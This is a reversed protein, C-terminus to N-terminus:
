YFSNCKRSSHPPAKGIEPLLCVAYLSHKSAAEWDLEGPKAAQIPPADLGRLQRRQNLWWFDITFHKWDCIVAGLSELWQVGLVVDLGMFPLSFLTLSFSIGQIQLPVNDFRRQCKMSSGNAVKVSFPDIPVLPLRLWSALKKNIFNHTSGSDILVIAKQQLITITVRM